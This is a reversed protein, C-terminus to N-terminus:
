LWPWTTAPLDPDAWPDRPYLSLSSGRMAAGEGPTVGEGTPAGEGLFYLLLFIFFRFICFFFNKGYNINLRFLSM